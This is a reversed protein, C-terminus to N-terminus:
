STLLQTLLEEIEALRDSQAYRNVIVNRHEQRLLGVNATEYRKVLNVCDDPDAFLCQTPYLYDAGYWDHILPLLGSSMGEAISYHFSEFLSTSIVYSKDQYWQPMDKIWGDFYVPLPHRRLFNHFYLEIRPDQHEGAIHLTYGPDYEVIKKFCYLLLAPNKKYNIYGVSGIKKNFPKSPEFDYRNTNVGNYIIRTPVQSTLENGLLDCVSQNVLILCDVKSWDVQSPMETFAEYSHLRCVIKCQKTLSTAAVLLQDCWEFWALDCWQLLANMRELSQSEYVKIQNHQGLHSLIDSLFSRHAAFVAIKKDKLRPLFSAKDHRGSAPLAGLAAETQSTANSM